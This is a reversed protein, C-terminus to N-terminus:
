RPFSQYSTITVRSRPYAGDIVAIHKGNPSVRAFFGHLGLRRIAGDRSVVQIERPQGENAAAFVVEGGPAWSPYIAHTTPPTLLQENGGNADVTCVTDIKGRRDSYFLIRKGDASWSPGWENGDGSTLARRESGNANVLYLHSKGSTRSAFVLRKGDPSWAPASNSAGDTTIKREAISGRVSVAVIDTRGQAGSAFALESGNPAWSTWTANVGAGSLRREDSGDRRSVFVAWEGNRLRSYAIWRSDPSWSVDQYFGEGAIERTATTECGAVCVLTFLVTVMRAATM